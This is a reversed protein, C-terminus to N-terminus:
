GNSGRKVCFRKPAAWRPDEEKGPTVRYYTKAFGKTSPETHDFEILGLKKLCAFTNTVSIYNVNVGSDRLQKYIDYPSGAGHSLLYTKIATSIINRKPM